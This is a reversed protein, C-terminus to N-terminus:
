SQPYGLSSERLECVFHLVKKTLPTNGHPAFVLLERM